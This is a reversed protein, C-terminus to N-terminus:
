GEYEKEMDYGFYKAIDEASMGLMREFAVVNPDDQKSLKEYCSDYLKKWLEPREELWPKVNKKGRIKLENGNSDHMIEGTDPDLMKFIGQTSNDILGFYSAIEITDLIIDPGTTYNFYIKGIRRDTKAVKSKLLAIDMVYGAPYEATSKLENCEEDIPAGKKTMLRLACAAKWAHGGSTTFPNGYGSINDRGQQIGICTCKFIDMLGQMRNTFDGLLKAIVGMEKKELGSDFIQQPVLKNLSDIVVLGIEGSATCDIVANLTEEATMNTPAMYYSTLEANPSMDFGCKKAWTRDVTHELDVYLVAKRDDVPKKLEERIYAACILFCLTTKGSGEYGCIEVFQGRPFTNYTIFDFSPIGIQIIGREAMTPAGNYMVNYKETGFKKNLASMVSKLSRIEAM